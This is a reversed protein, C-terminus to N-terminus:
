KVGFSDDYLSQWQSLRPLKWSDSKVLGGNEERQLFKDFLSLAVIKGNSIDMIGSEQNILFEVFTLLGCNVKEAFVIAPNLSIENNEVHKKLADLYRKCSGKLIDFKDMVQKDKCCSDISYGNRGNGEKVAIACAQLLEIANQHMSNFNMADQIQLAHREGFEDTGALIKMLDEENHPKSEQMIKILRCRRRPDNKLSVASDLSQRMIEKENDSANTPSFVKKYSESNISYNKGKFIWNELWTEVSCNSLKHEGHFARYLREGNEDLEMQDFFSSGKCFRLPRLATVITQRYTNQVYYSPKKLCQYSFSTWDNGFARSGLYNYKEKNRNCEYVFHIKSGLAEIANAIEHARYRKKNNSSKALRIGAIGWSAQRVFRLGGIEPVTMERHYRIASGLNFTLDIRTRSDWSDPYPVIFSPRNIVKNKSM